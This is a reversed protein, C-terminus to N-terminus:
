KDFIDVYHLFSTTLDIGTAPGQSSLRGPNSAVDLDEFMATGEIGVIPNLQDLRSPGINQCAEVRILRLTHLSDSSQEVGAGLTQNHVRSSVGVVPVVHVLQLQLHSDSEAFALGLHGLGLHGDHEVDEQM